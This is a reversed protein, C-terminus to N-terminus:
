EPESTYNCAECFYYWCEPLGYSAEAHCREYETSRCKPCYMATEIMMDKAMM